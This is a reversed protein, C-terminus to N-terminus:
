FMSIEGFLDSVLNNIPVQSESMTMALPLYRPADSAPYMTSQPMMDLSYQQQNQHPNSNNNNNYQPPQLPNNWLGMINFDNVNLAALGVDHGMLGFDFQSDLAPLGNSNGQQPNNVFRSYNPFLPHSQTTLNAPPPNSLHHYQHQKSYPSKAQHQRYQQDQQQQQHQKPVLLSDRRSSIVTSNSAALLSNKGMAASKVVLSESGSGKQDVIYEHFASGNNTGNKTRTPSSPISSQVKSRGQRKRPSASSSKTPSESPICTPSNPSEEMEPSNTPEIVEDGDENICDIM